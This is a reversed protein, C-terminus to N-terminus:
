RAEPEKDKLISIGFCLAWKLPSEALHLTSVPSYKSSPVRYIGAILIIESLIVRRLWQRVGVRNLLFATHTMFVLWM